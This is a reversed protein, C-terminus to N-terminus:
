DAAHTLGDLARGFGALTEADVGRGAQEALAVPAAGFARKLTALHREAEHRAAIALRAAHWLPDGAALPPRALAQEDAASFRRPWVRNLVPAALAVGVAALAGRTEMAETVAMEDPIAVLVVRTRRHNEVLAQLRAVSSGIPGRPVLRTLQAPTRLLRVAHGSAPGDVIVTDYPARRTFRGPETWQQLHDLIVFETVGPAAATVARFTGSAFLRNALFPLRLLRRFYSEVLARSEIRVGSLRAEMEVPDPGLAAGGFLAAVSREAATEVLLVRRKQAAVQRALAAAVTTKGVGGKGTVFLLQPAPM